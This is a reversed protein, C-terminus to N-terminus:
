KILLKKILDTSINKIKQNEFRVNGLQYNEIFKKWCSYKRASNLFLTNETHDKLTTAFKYPSDKLYDTSVFIKGESYDIWVGYTENNYIFAFSFKSTSHKKEIFNRNIHNDQNEIAYKEYSTGQVLRGFRTKSKEERYEENKMYQLLILGDRFTKIDSNYPLSMDFYLFYPNTIVNGANGLLFVRVNRMRALTEILNLFTEVENNLYYKKQGNTM